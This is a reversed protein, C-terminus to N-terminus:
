TTEEQAHNHIFSKYIIMYIYTKIEWPDMGMYVYSQCTSYSYINIFLWWATELTAPGSQM